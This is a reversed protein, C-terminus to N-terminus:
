GPNSWAHAAAFFDGAHRKIGRAVDHIVIDFLLTSRDEFVNPEHQFVGARTPVVNDINRDEERVHLLIKGDVVTEISFMEGAVAFGVRCARRDLDRSQGRRDRNFELYYRRKSLNDDQVAFVTFSRESCRVACSNLLTLRLALTVERRAEAGRSPGGNSNSTPREAGATVTVRLMLVAGNRMM